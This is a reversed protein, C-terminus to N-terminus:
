FTICSNRAKLTSLSLLSFLGESGWEDHSQCPSGTRCTPLCAAPTGTVRGLGPLSERDRSREWVRGVAGRAGSVPRGPVERDDWLTAPWSILDPSTHRGPFGRPDGLESATGSAASSSTPTPQRLAWQTQSSVSAPLRPGLTLASGGLSSESPMETNGRSPAPRVRAPHQGGYWSGLSVAPGRPVWLPGWVRVSTLASPTLLMRGQGSRDTCGGRRSEGQTLPRPRGAPAWVRASKSWCENARDWRDSILTHDPSVAGRVRASPREQRKWCRPDGCTGSSHGRGERRQRM